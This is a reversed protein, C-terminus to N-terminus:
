FILKHLGNKSLGGCAPQQLQLFKVQALSCLCLGHKKKVPFLHMALINKFHINKASSGM